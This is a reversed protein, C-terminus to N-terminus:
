ARGSLERDFYINRELNEEEALDKTIDIKVSEVAFTIGVIGWAVFYGVKYPFKFFRGNHGHNYRYNFFAGSAAAILTGKLFGITGAQLIRSQIKEM